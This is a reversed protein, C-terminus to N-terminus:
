RGRLVAQRAARGRRVAAIVFRWLGPSIARLSTGVWARLRAADRLAGLGILAALVRHRLRPPRLAAEVLPAARREAERWVTEDVPGTHLRVPRRFAKQRLPDIYAAAFLRLNNLKIYPGALPLRKSWAARLPFQSQDCERTLSLQMLEDSDAIVDFRPDAGFNDYLYHGDITNADFAATRHERVMAYNVFIPTWGLSQVLIGSGDPVRWWTAVPWDTYYPAEWEYVISESHMNRLFVEVTERGSLALPSGARLLGRGRLEALTKDQEARLGLALVIPFGAAARRQLAEVAGDSFIVDPAVVMTAARAAFARETALRHGASSLLLNSRRDLPGPAPMEIHEPTVLAALRAFIPHARVIRWDESTTVILFRSDQRNRLAPINRPALLSPLCAELFVTRFAEGWFVTLFYFRPAEASM